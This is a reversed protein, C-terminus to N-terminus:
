NEDNHHRFLYHIKNESLLKEVEKNSKTVLYTKMNTRGSLLSDKKMNFGQDQHFLPVRENLMLRLLQTQQEKPMAQYQAM